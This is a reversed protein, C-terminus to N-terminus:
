WRRRRGTFQCNCLSAPDLDVDLTMEAITKFNAFFFHLLKVYPPHRLVIGTQVIISHLMNFQARKLHMSVFCFTNANVADM